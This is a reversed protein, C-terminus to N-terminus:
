DTSSFMRLPDLLAPVTLPTGGIYDPGPAASVLGLGLQGYANYGWCRVIGGELLVCSHLGGASAAIVHIPQGGPGNGLDIPGISAISENDGFTATNDLGVQGKNNTGWCRVRSSSQVVCLHFEGMSAQVIPFDLQFVASDASSLPQVSSDGIGLGGDTNDGWCLLTGRSDALHACTRTAGLALSDVPDSSRMQLPPIATPLENDGITVHDGTGLQALNNRGWCRVHNNHLVV